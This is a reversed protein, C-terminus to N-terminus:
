GGGFQSANFSTDVTPDHQGERSMRKIWELMQGHANRVYLMYCDSSWRGALRIVMEPCGADYLATAGGIRLSHTKAEGQGDWDGNLRAVEMMEEVARELQVVSITENKYSYRFLPTAAPDEGEKLPMGKLMCWINHAANSESSSDFPLEVSAGKRYQTDTKIATIDVVCKVPAEFSPLFSFSAHSIRRPDSLWTLFASATPCLESRRFLGQWCASVCAKLARHFPDAQTNLVKFWGLLYPELIALRRAHNGSKRRMLGKICEPATGYVDGNPMCGIRRGSLRKHESRVLSLYTKATAPDNGKDVLANAFMSLLMDEFMLQAPSPWTEDLWFVPDCKAIVRCYISWQKWACDMGKKTNDRWAERVSEVMQRHLIGGVPTGKIENVKMQYWDPSRNSARFDASTDSILHPLPNPLVFMHATNTSWTLVFMHTLPSM